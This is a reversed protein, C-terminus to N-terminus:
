TRGMVLGAGELQKLVESVRQLSRGEGMANEASLCQALSGLSRGDLLSWVRAAFEDTVFSEVPGSLGIGDVFRLMGFYPSRWTGSHPAVTVWSALDGVAISALPVDWARMLCFAVISNAFLLRATVVEPLPARTGVGGVLREHLLRWGEGAIWDMGEKRALRRFLFKGAVYIDGTAALAVEAAARLAIESSELATGWDGYEAAGCADDAGGAAIIAHRAMLIQRVADTSVDRRARDLEACGQLDQGVYFDILIKLDPEPMNTQARDTSTACYRAGIAVLEGLQALSIEKIELRSRGRRRSRGPPSAPERVVVYVDIDSSGHGLGVALSGALYAGFVEANSGHEAIAALAVGREVDTPYRDPVAFSLV